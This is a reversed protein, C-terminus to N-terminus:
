GGVIIYLMSIRDGDSVPKTLEEPFTSVGNLFLDIHGLLKGDKHFLLKEVGPFQRVLDCLCEGVTAGNVEAVKLGKTLHLLFPPVEIQVGM